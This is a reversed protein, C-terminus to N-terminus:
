KPKSYSLGQIENKFKAYGDTKTEPILGFEKKFDQESEYGSWGNTSCLLNIVGILVMEIILVRLKIKHASGMKGGIGEWAGGDVGKGTETSRHTLM